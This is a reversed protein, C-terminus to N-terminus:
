VRGNLAIAANATMVAERIHRIAATRDACKPACEMIIRAFAHAGARLREYRPLQDETPRHYSFVDDLWDLDEVTIGPDRREAAANRPDAAMPHGDRPDPM